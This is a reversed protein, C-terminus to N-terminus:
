CGFVLSCTSDTDFDSHRKLGQNQMKFWGNIRFIFYFQLNMQTQTINKAMFFKSDLCWADTTRPLFLFSDILPSISLSLSDFSQSILLMDFCGSKVDRLRLYRKWPTLPIQYFKKCDLWYKVSWSFQMSNKPPSKQDVYVLDESLAFESLARFEVLALNPFFGLINM